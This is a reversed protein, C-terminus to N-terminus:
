MEIETISEIVITYLDYERWMGLRGYLITNYQWLIQQLESFLGRDIQNILAYITEDINYEIIKSTDILRHKKAESYLKETAGPILPYSPSYSTTIYFITYNNTPIKIATHFRSAKTGHIYLQLTNEAKTEISLCSLTHISIYDLHLKEILEVVAEKREIYIYKPLLDLPWTYILKRFKILLGNSLAIINRDLDIKRINSAITKGTLSVGFLSEIYHLINNNYCLEKQELWETFWNRQVTVVKYGLIKKEIPGEKITHKEISHCKINDVIGSDRLIDILKKPIFLPSKLYRYIRGTTQIYGGRSYSTDIAIYNKGLTKAISAVKIASVGSGIIAVDVEIMGSNVSKSCM